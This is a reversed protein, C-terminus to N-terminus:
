FLNGKYILLEKRCANEQSKRNMKTLIRTHNENKPKKPLKKPVSVSTELAEKFEDTLKDSLMHHGELEVKNNTESWDVRSNGGLVEYVNEYRSDKFLVKIKWQELASAMVGSKVM